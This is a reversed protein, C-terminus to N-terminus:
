TKYHDNSVIKHGEYGEISRCKEFDRLRLNIINSSRLGNIIVLSTILYDLIQIAVSKPLVKGYEPSDRCEDVTKIINQVHKSRGYRIFHSPTLLQCVKNKRVETKRQKIHPKLEKNFDTISQRLIQLESRSM